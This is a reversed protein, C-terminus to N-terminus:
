VRGLANVRVTNELVEIVVEPIVNISGIHVSQIVNTHLKRNIKIPINLRYNSGLRVNNIGQQPYSSHRAPTQLVQILLQLHSTYHLAYAQCQRPLYRTVCFGTGEPAIYAMDLRYYVNGLSIKTETNVSMHLLQGSASKPRGTWGSARNDPGAELM